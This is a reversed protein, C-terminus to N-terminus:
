LLGLVAPQGQTQKKHILQAIRGAVQKSAIHQDPYVRVPLKEYRTEEILNLRAM